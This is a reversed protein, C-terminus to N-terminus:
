DYRVNSAGTIEKMKTLRQDKPIVDNNYLVAYLAEYDMPQDAYRALYRILHEEVLAPFQEHNNLSTLSVGADDGNEKFLKFLRLRYLMHRVSNIDAGAGQLSVGLREAAAAELAKFSPLRQQEAEIVADAIAQAIRSRPEPSLLRMGGQTLIKRYAEINARLGDPDVENTTRAVSPSAQLYALGADSLGFLDPNNSDRQLHEDYTALLELLSTHGVNHVDFTPDLRLMVAALQDVPVHTQELQAQLQQVAKLTLRLAHEHDANDRIFEVDQASLAGAKSQLVHYFKFQHCSGAWFKNTTSQEGVGFVQRGLARIKQALPIYDSDGGVVVVHSLHPFRILDEQIDLAMRIDAGNKAQGGPPFLQVLEINHEMLDTRYRSFWQWNGYARHISIQGISSAFASIAEVNLIPEQLRFRSDPSAYYGSGYKEELVAAHLNEFDWYVAVGTVPPPSVINM